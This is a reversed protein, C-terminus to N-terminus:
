SRRAPYPTKREDGSTGRALREADAEGAIGKRVLEYRGDEPPEMKDWESQKCVANREDGQKPIFRYVVWLETAKARM